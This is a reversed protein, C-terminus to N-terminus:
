TDRKEVTCMYMTADAKPYDGGVYWLRKKNYVAVLITRTRIRGGSDCCGEGSQGM